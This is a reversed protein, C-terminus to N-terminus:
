GWRYKRQLEGDGLSLFNVQNTMVNTQVQGGCIVLQNDFVTFSAFELGNCDKFDNVSPMVSFNELQNSVMNYRYIQKDHNALMYIRDQNIACSLRALQRNLHVFSWQDHRTDYIQVENLVQKRITFNNNRNNSDKSEALGVGGLIYLKLKYGAMGPSYCKHPIETVTEWRDGSTKPAYKEITKLVTPREKQAEAARNLNNNRKATSKMATLLGGAVYLENDLTTGAHRERAMILDAIEIWKNLQVNFMSVTKMTNGTSHHGGTIYINNDLVNVVYSHANKHDTSIDPLDYWSYREGNGKPVKQLARVSTIRSSENIGGVIVLTPVNGCYFRPRIMKEFNDKKTLFASQSKRENSLLQYKTALKVLRMSWVTQDMEEFFNDVEELLFEGSILGLRVSSSTFIKQIEHKRTVDDHKVWLEVMSFVSEERDVALDDDSLFHILQDTDLELFQRTKAVQRANNMANKWAYDRLRTLGRKTAFYFFQLCNNITTLQKLRSECVAKLQDIQFYDATVWMQKANDAGIEIQQGYLYKVMTEISKVAHSALNIEMKNATINMSEEINGEGSANRSSRNGSTEKWKDPALQAAFYQSSATLVCAHCNLFKDNVLKLKVNLHHLSKSDQTQEYLSQCLTRRKMTLHKREIPTREAKSSTMSTQSETEVRTLLLNQVQQLSAANKSMSLQHQLLSQQQPTLQRLVNLTENVNIRSNQFNNQTSNNLIQTNHIPQTPMNQSTANQSSMTQPLQTPLNNSINLKPVNQILNSESALRARKNPNEINQHQSGPNPSMQDCNQASNHRANETANHTVNQSANQQTPLVQQLNPKPSSTSFQIKKTQMSPPVNIPNHPRHYLNPTNCQQSPPQQNCQSFPSCVNQDRTINFSIHPHETPPINATSVDSESFNNTSVNNTPVNNTSVNTTSINNSITHNNATSVSNGSANEQVIASKQVVTENNQVNEGNSAIVRSDDESDM